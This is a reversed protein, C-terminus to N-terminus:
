RNGFIYQEKGANTQEGKQEQDEKLNVDPYEVREHFVGTMVETFANAIENLDKLTLNCEDLQGDELKEKILKRILAEIKGSSPDSMARVAAEVTDAMMVIAIEPIQPKPGPYRFNDLHVDEGKEQNKAKHYFYVVPTTGHHQQIFDQIVKPLRYKKAIDIGDKAHSIIIQTSLIPNLKDHPNRGTLQNERFYFPRQLKGTDHYYAGVRALLGNAGIAEAANEALNAVIVSHHYTGPAERLLRRLLPHNPNSLEVLKIPTVIGFINEWIPLTGILFVASLMGSGVGWLSTRLPEVWGGSTLMEYGAIALINIGSVAAGALILGNRQHTRSAIFIGATGGIVAMIVISLHEEIMIGLIIAIGMNIVIAPRPNVLVTILMGALSAPILYINLESVVRSLGLTMWVILSIMLLLLPTSATEKEFRILYLAVIMQIIFIILGLGVIFPVDVKDDKLLGLNQLVAYQEETIPQGAQVIYQGKKYIVKEVQQAKKQREEETANHDYIMNPKLVSTGITTGLLRVENSIPLSMIEERLTSKAELLNDQKIRLELLRSLTTKLQEKLEELEDDDARICTLIEDKSLMIDFKSQLANIFSSDLVSEIDIKGNGAEAVQSSSIENSQLNVDEQIDTDRVEKDQQFRESQEFEDLKQSVLIRVEQIQNFVKEIDELVTENISEDLRYIPSVSDRAEKIREQTAIVDEVDRPASIPTQLIDGVKLDYQEPIIASLVIASVVVLNVVAVIIGLIISKNIYRFIPEEVQFNNRKLSIQSMTIKREAV